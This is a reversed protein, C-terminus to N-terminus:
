MWEQGMLPAGAAATYDVVLKPDQSTGTEDSMSVAFRSNAASAWTGGFSNDVDWGLRTGVITNGTKNIHSRFSANGTFDNYLGTGLGVSSARTIFETSGFNAVAYDGSALTSESAPTASTVCVEFAGLGANIVVGWLSFTVSNITAGAGISSTPFGFIGRALREFQDTTTSANLRCAVDSTGTAGAGTGAGNRITSFAEDAGSRDVNGDVPASGTGPNPFATLLTHGITGPVVHGPRGVLRITHALTELMAALPDLRRGGADPIWVPPNVIRVRETEVTGRPGFGLPQGDRRAQFFVEVGHFGAPDVFRCSSVIDVRLRPTPDYRGSRLVALIADTKLNSTM